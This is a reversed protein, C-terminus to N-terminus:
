FDLTGSYEMGLETTATIFVQGSINPLTADSDEHTIIGTWIISGDADEIVVSLYEIENPIAISIYDSSYTCDIETPLTFPTRPENPNEKIPPMSLNTSQLGEDQAHVNTVALALLLLTLLTKYSM